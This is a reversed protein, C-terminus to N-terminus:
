RRAAHPYARLEGGHEATDPYEAWSTAPGANARVPDQVVLRVSGLAVPGITAAAPDPADDGNLVVLRGIPAVATGATSSWGREVLVDVLLAVGDLAADVQELLM